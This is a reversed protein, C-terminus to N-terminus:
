STSKAILKKGHGGAFELLPSKNCMLRCLVLTAPSGQLYFQDMVTAESRPLLCFTLDRLVEFDEVVPNSLLRSEAM